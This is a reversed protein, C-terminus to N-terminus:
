GQGQLIDRALRTWTGIRQVFDEEGRIPTLGSTGVGYRRGHCIDAISHLKAEMAAPSDVLVDNPHLSIQLHKSEPINAVSRRLDTWASVEFSELSEVKLMLGQFETQDGCSHIAGIAGHHREIDLYRPLLFREFWAPSVFPAGIWDDAIWTKGVHTGFHAACADYWRCREEVLRCLLDHVFRPRDVSDVMLNEYGRLQVALDLCGRNWTIFGISLAGESLEVLDHYWRLARPMWGSTTFDVQPVLSVDPTRSIPHDRQLRPVGRDTFDQQIGLFTYEPYHGLWAPVDLTIPTDDDIHRFRWLKQRLVQLLYFVPDTFYRAGDFGSLVCWAIPEEMAVTIAPLRQGRGRNRESQAAERVEDILRRIEDRTKPDM